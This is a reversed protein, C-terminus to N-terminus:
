RGGLIEEIVKKVLVLSGESFTHTVEVRADDSGKNTWHPSVRMYRCDYTYVADLDSEVFPENRQINIIEILKGNVSIEVSMGM